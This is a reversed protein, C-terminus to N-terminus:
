PRIIHGSILDQIISPKSAGGTMGKIIRVQGGFLQRCQRTTKAPQCGSRNASTSVLAMGSNRSLEATLPHNSVRVALTTHRGTLWKPCHKAAPALWTHGRTRNQWSQQMQQNQSASLPAMYPQLKALRDAVLILGKRQPRRKLRLIKQVAARNDPDCGLGFISETPYAIVGGSKLFKQLGRAVPMRRDAKLQAIVSIAATNRGM